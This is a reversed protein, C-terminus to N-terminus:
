VAHGSGCAYCLYVRHLAEEGGPMMLLFLSKNEAGNQENLLM